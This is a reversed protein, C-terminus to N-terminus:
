PESRYGLKQSLRQAADIVLSLKRVKLEPTYRSQPIALSLAAVVEGTHNLVPAGIAYTSLEYDEEAIYHGQSQILDLLENLETRDM